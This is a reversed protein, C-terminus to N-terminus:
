RQGRQEGSPSQDPQPSQQGPLIVGTGDELLHQGLTVVLGSLPPSVIQIVDNYTVGLTIPVFQAKLSQADVVFVGQQDNRKVLAVVPVVTAQEIQGFQLRVRAFMGPKLLEEPNPVNIEIRAQRSTEQLMPAIRTVQGPFEKGPFADTTITVRQGARVRFYDREIVQVVCTISSLDLVSVIQDNARLEAGEEVFREGIIRPQEGAAWTAKIETYSLNLEATKLASERSALTAQAVKVKSLAADYAAEATELNSQSIINTKTLEQAREFQKQALVLSSKADALNANAVDLDSQARDVQQQYVEADVRAIVQGRTVRDGVDVLLENLRGAVNSTVVFQAKPLLSGTYEGIDEITQQRIEAVEVAVSPRGNFGGPQGQNQRGQPAGSPMGPSPRVGPSQQRVELIRQYILWGLGSIVSLLIIGIIIKKLM